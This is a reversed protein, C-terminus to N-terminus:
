ERELAQEWWETHSSSSCRFAPEKIGSKTECGWSLDPISLRYELSGSFEVVNGEGEGDLRTNGLSFLYMMSLVAYSRVTLNMCCHYMRLFIFNKVNTWWSTRLWSTITERTESWKRCCVFLCVFLFIFLIFVFLFACSYWEDIKCETRIISNGYCQSAVNFANAVTGNSLSLCLSTQM